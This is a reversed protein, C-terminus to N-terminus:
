RKRTKEEWLNFVNTRKPKYQLYVKFTFTRFPNAQLIINPSPVACFWDGLLAGQKDFSCTRTLALTLRTKSKSRLHQAEELEWQKGTKACVRGKNSNNKAM